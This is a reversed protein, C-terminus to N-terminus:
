PGIRLDLKLILSFLIYMIDLRTNEFVCRHQIDLIKLSKGTYDRGEGEEGGFFTGPENILGM